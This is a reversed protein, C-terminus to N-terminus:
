GLYYSIKMNLFRLINRRHYKRRVLFISVLSNRVNNKLYAIFVEALMKAVKLSLSAAGKLIESLIFLSIKAKTRINRGFILNEALTM